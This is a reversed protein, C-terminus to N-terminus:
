LRSLAAGCAIADRERRAARWVDDRADDGARDFLREAL